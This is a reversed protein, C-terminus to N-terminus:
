KSSSDFKILLVILGLLVLCLVIIVCMKGKDKSDKLIKAAKSMNAKLRGMTSDVDRDLDELMRNQTNLEDHITNGIENLRQVGQSLDALDEDQNRMLYEQRQVENNLFAENDHDAARAFRDNLGDAMVAGAAGGAATTTLKSRGANSAGAVASQIENVFQRTQQVFMKRSKVEEESLRFKRRDNEVISITEELDQLDFDIAKASKKLEATLREFEPNGAGQNGVALKKHRDLLSKAKSCTQEIEEKVMYFPDNSAM